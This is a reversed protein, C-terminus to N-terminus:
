HGTFRPARREIVAALQRALALSESALQDDAVVRTVLGMELAQPATIVPNLMLIEMAKRLEIDLGNASEPRNLRLHAVGDPDLDLLVPGSAVLAESNRHTNM